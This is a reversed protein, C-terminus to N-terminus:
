RTAFFENMGDAMTQYKKPFDDINWANWDFMTPCSVGYGVAASISEVGLTRWIFWYYIKKAAWQYAM